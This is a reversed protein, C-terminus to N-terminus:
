EGGARRALRMGLCKVELNFYIRGMDGRTIMLDNFYAVLYRFFLDEFMERLASMLHAASNRAGQLIRTPKYVGSPFM